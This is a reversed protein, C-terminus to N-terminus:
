EAYKRPANTLVRGAPIRDSRYPRMGTMRVPRAIVTALPSRNDTSTDGTGTITM